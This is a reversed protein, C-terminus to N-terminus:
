DIRLNTNHETDVRIRLGASINFLLFLIFLKIQIM